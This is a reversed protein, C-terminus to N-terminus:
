RVARARHGTGLLVDGRGGGRLPPSALPLVERAWAPKDAPSVGRGYHYLPKRDGPPGQQKQLQQQQQLSKLYAHEQQLQRQLRESQRQEELQKRKYEQAWPLPAPEAPRPGPRACAPGKELQGSPLPRGRAGSTDGDWEPVSARGGRGGLPVPSGTVLLLAQEQLLQQQLIELQRQEEELRHRIYDQPAPPM